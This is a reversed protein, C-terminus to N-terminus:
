CRKVCVPQSDAPVPTFDCPDVGSAGLPRPKRGECFLRRTNDVSSLVSAACGCKGQSRRQNQACCLVTRAMAFSMRGIVHQNLISDIEDAFTKARDGIWNAEYIQHRSGWGALAAPACVAKTLWDRNERIDVIQNDMYPASFRIRNSVCSTNFVVATTCPFGRAIHQALGGGLSHGTVHFRVTRGKADEFAKRRIMAFQDRAMKYQDWPNFWQTVWSANAVADTPVPVYGGWTDTGRFAVMVHYENGVARSFVAYGFGNPHSFAAGVQTWAPDLKTLNFRARNGYANLSAVAYTLFSSSISEKSDCGGAETCTSGAQIGVRLDPLAPALCVSPPQSAADIGLSARSVPQGLWAALAGLPLLLLVLIRLM